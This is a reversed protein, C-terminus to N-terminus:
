RQLLRVPVPIALLEPLTMRIVYNQVTKRIDEETSPRASATPSDPREVARTEYINLDLDNETVWARIAGAVSTQMYRRWERTRQLDDTVQRFRRFPSADDLSELLASKVTDPVTAAFDRMWGKVEEATIAQIPVLGEEAVAEVETPNREIIARRTSDWFRRTGADWHVFAHWLDSRVWSGGAPTSKAALATRAQTSVAVDVDPGTAAPSIIVLGRREAEELFRRFSGFGYAKEDFASGLRTALVSKV